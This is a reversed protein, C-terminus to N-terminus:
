ITMGPFMDDIANTLSDRVGKIDVKITSASISDKKAKSLSPGKKDVVMTQEIPYSRASKM